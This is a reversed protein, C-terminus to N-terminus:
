LFTLFVPTKINLLFTFFNSVNKNNSHETRVFSFFSMHVNKYKVLPLTALQNQEFPMSLRADMWLSTLKKKIIEIRSSFCVWSYFISYRM